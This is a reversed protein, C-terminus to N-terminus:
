PTGYRVEVWMPLGWACHCRLLTEAILREEPLEETLVLPQWYARMVAGMPTGPGTRTLLDNELASVMLVM